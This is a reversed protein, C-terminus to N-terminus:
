NGTYFTEPNRTALAEDVTMPPVRYSGLLDGERWGGVPTIPSKSGLFLDIDPTFDVEKPARPKSGQGFLTRQRYSSEARRRKGSQIVFRAFTEAYFEFPSTRGYDSTAELGIRLDSHFPHSTDTLIRSSDEAWKDVGANGLRTNHHIHGYEHAVMYLVPNDRAEPIFWTKLGPEIKDNLHTYYRDRTRSDIVTPHLHVVNGVTEMDKRGLRTVFGGVEGDSYGVMEFPAESVVFHASNLRAVQQCENVASMVEAKDADSMTQGKGHFVIVSRHPMDSQWVEITTGALRSNSDASKTEVLRYGHKSAFEPGGPGHTFRGTKKDHHPNAKFVPNQEGRYLFM